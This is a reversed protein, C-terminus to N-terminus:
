VNKWTSSQGKREFALSKEWHRGLAFLESMGLRGALETFGPSPARLNGLDSELQMAWKRCVARGGEAGAIKGCCNDVKCYLPRFGCSVDM